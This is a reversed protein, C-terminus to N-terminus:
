KLLTIVREKANTWEQCMPFQEWIEEKTRTPVKKHSMREMRIIESGLSACTAESDFYLHFRHLVAAFFIRQKLFQKIGDERPFSTQKGFCSFFRAAFLLSLINLMTKGSVFFLFLKLRSTFSKLLAYIIKWTSHASQLEFCPQINLSKKIIWWKLICWIYKNKKKFRLVHKVTCKRLSNNAELPSDTQGKDSHCCM